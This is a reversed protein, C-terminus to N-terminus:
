EVNEQQIVIKAEEKMTALLDNFVAEGRIGTLTQKLNVKKSEEIEGIKGDTVSNVAVVAYDGAALVTGGYSRDGEKPRSLKFAQKVIASDIKRDSRKLEGSKTWELGMEEAIASPEEGARLRSIIEEGQLKAKEQAKENMLRIKIEAKAQELTRPKKEVHDKVRLVVVHNEGIELPESNYGEVLVENSFAAQAVKPNAAVGTGGQRGFLPTTKIELGVAGAADTLTTPVEYALTTLKEAEQFFKRDAINQQYEALLEDKVEDFSKSKEARIEELKIIHFGFSSLVPESIEGEKLSFLADEYQPDLNGRGFFGIDGGLKSSGPDDSFEEALKAFDAGDTLKKYIDNAKERAKTITEEDAGADVAILIHRSRREEPVQFQSAREKYFQQLEEDTPQVDKGLDTSKLEVYEISVQEPTMFEDRHQEYYQQLADESADAEDKFRDAKLLLHDVDRTQNELKLLRDLEAQPVIASTSVGSHLQQTLIARQLRHEFSAPTEGQAKLASTYLQNSFQGDAKFADISLITQKVSAEAVRFGADNAHQALLEQNILDQMAQEKIRADFVSPDYQAGLMERMRNRQMYYNQQYDRQSIEEGNVMAAVLPGGGDMYKNIGWLAFPIILLIVIAWAIWGQIKERIFHLM